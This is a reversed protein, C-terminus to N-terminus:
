WPNEKEWGLSWCSDPHLFINIKKRSYFAGEPNIEISPEQSNQGREQTWKITILLTPENTDSSVYGSVSNKSRRNLSPSSDIIVRRIRVKLVLILLNCLFSFFLRLNDKIDEFSTFRLSPEFLTKITYKKKKKFLWAKELSLYPRRLSLHPNYKLTRKLLVPQMKRWKAWSQSVNEQSMSSTSTTNYHKNGFIRWFM